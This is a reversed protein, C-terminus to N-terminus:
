SGFGEPAPPLKAMMQAIKDDTFGQAHMSEIWSSFKKFTEPHHVMEAFERSALWDPPKPAPQAPPPADAVNVLNRLLPAAALGAGVLAAGRNWRHKKSSQKKAADTYEEINKPALKNAGKDAISDGLGRFANYGGFGQVASRAVLAGAVGPAFGVAGSGIAAGTLAVGVIMRTKKHTRLWNSVKSLLPHRREREATMADDVRKRIQLLQTNIISNQYKDVEELRSIIESCYNELKRVNEEATSILKNYDSSRESTPLSGLRNLESRWSELNFTAEKSKETIERYNEDM